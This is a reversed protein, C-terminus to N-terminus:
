LHEMLHSVLQELIIKLISKSKGKIDFIYFNLEAIVVM